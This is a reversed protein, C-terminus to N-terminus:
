RATPKKLRVTLQWQDGVHLKVDQNNWNLKILGHTSQNNRQQLAFLFNVGHEAQNPISAIYGTVIINQGELEEPLRSVFREHAFWWAWAFGLLFIAALRLYKQQQSKLFYLSAATMLSLLFIFFHPFNSFQQLCLIGCLFALTWTRM